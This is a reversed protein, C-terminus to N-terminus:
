FNGYIFPARIGSGLIIWLVMSAILLARPLPKWTSFFVIEKQRSQFHDFLLVPIWPIIMSPLLPLFQDMGSFSLLQRFFTLSAITGWSKFFVWGIMVVAMVYLHQLPKWLSKLWRGPRSQEFAIASGHILGWILFNYSAGHWAGTLLFVVLVNVQQPWWARRRRKGELPYFVYDRFWRSLSIHWRGWFLSITKASYPQRFNDMLKIGFLTSIGRAIDTYGSFDFYIQVTFFLLARLLEPTSFLAPERFLPDIFPALPNAIALKKFLGLLILMAGLQLNTIQFIRPAALQPLFDPAREIPGSVLKPFYLEYIAFDLFSAPPKLDGRYVDILYSLNQFVFFSIGLPILLSLVPSPVNQGLLSLLRLSNDLFFQYWKFVLLVGLNGALGLTLVTKRLATTGSRDIALGAAYNMVAAIVLFVLSRYDWVAVIVLCVVLLLINQWKGRLWRNPPAYYLFLIVILSCLLVPSTFM